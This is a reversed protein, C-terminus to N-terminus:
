LASKGSRLVFRCYRKLFWCWAIRERSYGTFQKEWRHHEKRRERTHFSRSEAGQQRSISTLPTNQLSTGIFAREHKTVRMEWPLVHLLGRGTWRLVGAVDGSERHVTCVLLLNKFLSAASGFWSNIGHMMERLTKKVWLAVSCIPWDLTNSRPGPSCPM